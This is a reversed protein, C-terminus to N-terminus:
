KKIENYTVKISEQQYKIESQQKIVNIIVKKIESPNLTLDFSEIPIKYKKDLGNRYVKVKWEGPRLYTFDFNEGIMVIKRYIQNGNSAEIIINEKKKHDKKNSLGIFNSQTNESYEIKGQIGAAGTLGFNFVNEKNTLQLSAPLSIDSIDNIDTTSRDIELIYDGPIVNKFDFNGNKDTVSLYHGLLVRIGEVKKVGLNSITGSLSTYDATKQTPINLRATYRLSFIFDKNGLEGRQLTYRGSLDFEHGQFIEQHFLVEFLNRDAFYEEPMYNNQYFLSFSTKQSIRSLIRAGYYVQKQNQMQYRSTVAYSGYINFSTRFKEFGINATYFSSNGSFNLLYNKTKGFQGEANFQFIGLQQDISIRFFQEKYDFEKPMLRDEYRQFGNFVSFSGKKAYRYLIGYQLYKRYPAALFLTDRQFNKADQVFNALLDVKKSVRYQLTGNFTSTNNFYGAYQPSTRMYMVNGSIKNFNAVTQMMFANGETKQTKSYSIEGSVEINKNLKFKGTVYPLQADSDLRFNTFSLVTNDKRPIKYLYGATIESEKAIKFKSYVNFEDQIERFFRPHNYFGGFSIKKIDIRVEAGRGYRSYETLFSSSYNKDGLHIFVNERKYNVFYEEYKMFSNFEVPNKTVAHFEILNKNEKDLSGKGYIEGQFGNQYDGRNEMGTFALSAFVPLRHFVDEESPKVSIIKVSAYASLNEKPHERSYVSLIINQSENKGLDPSTKKSVTIIKQEDPSLMLSINQDIVANKSELILNEKFNGNNKLLFTSIITEGARVFEPANLATLLLKRNGSIVFEFDNSFQDGTKKETGYLTIKYTGQPTESAIKVPVLYVSKEGSSIEIEGKALIPVINQNSTEVSLKYIKNESFNNEITFPISTTIGPMLSDKKEVFSKTQSFIVAPFLIFIYSACNKIM